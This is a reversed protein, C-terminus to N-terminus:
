VNVVIEIISSVGSAVNGSSTLAYIADMTSAFIAESFRSKPSAKLVPTIVPEALMVLVAPTKGGPPVPPVPVAALM